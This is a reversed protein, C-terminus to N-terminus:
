FLIGSEKFSSGVNDIASAFSAARINTKLKLAKEFQKDLSGTLMDELASYVIKIESAGHLEHADRLEYFEKKTLKKDMIFEYLRKTSDEEWRRTLRGQEVHQINKLWEFYSVTVGGANLILDPIIQIGKEECIEEGAVTTPGHAAEAIFKCKLRPANYRHIVREKAAPVM